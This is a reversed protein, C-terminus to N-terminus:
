ELHEMLEKLLHFLRHTAVTGQMPTVQLLNEVELALVEMMNLVLLKLVLNDRVVV